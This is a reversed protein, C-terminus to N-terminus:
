ENEIMPWCLSVETKGDTTSKVDLYGQHAALIKQCIALGFGTNGDEKWTTFYPTKVWPLYDPNIGTGSNIITVILWQNLFFHLDVTVKSIKIEIKNLDNKAAKLANHVTEKLAMNFLELDVEISEREINEQFEIKDKLSKLEGEEFVADILEKINVRSKLLEVDRVFFLLRKNLNSQYILRKEIREAQQAPDKWLRMLADVDHILQSIQNGYEMNQEALHHELYNKLITHLARWDEIFAKIEPKKLEQKKTILIFKEDYSVHDPVFLQDFSEGLQQYITELSSLEGSRELNLNNSYLVSLPNSAPRYGVVVFPLRPYAAALAKAAALALANFDNFTELNAKILLLNSKKM